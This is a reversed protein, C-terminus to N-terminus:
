RSVGDGGDMYVEPVPDHRWIYAHTLSGLDVSPVVRIAHFLDGDSEVSTITGIPIGRPFVGDIGATVVLDGPRVDVQLPLFVLSLVGPDERTGRVIGQRRTREVMAGVSSDRDTVLLVRAYGGGASVVRGLLGEATTVTKRSWDERRAGAPLRLIATRRFSHHDVYAVDALLLDADAPPEYRLQKSVLDSELRAGVSAAYAAELERVRERLEVNEREMEARAVRGRRVRDVTEAVAAVFQKVPGEVWLALDGARQPEQATLLALLFVVVGGFVIAVRRESM